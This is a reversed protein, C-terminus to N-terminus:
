DNLGGVLSVKGCPSLNAFYDLVLCPDVRTSKKIRLPGRAMGVGIQDVARIPKGDFCRPNGVVEREGSALWNM